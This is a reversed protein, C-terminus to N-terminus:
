SITCGNLCLRGASSRVGRMAAPLLAMVFADSRKDCLYDAQDEEVGFWLTTGRGNLIIDACLRAQADTHTIYLKGIELM